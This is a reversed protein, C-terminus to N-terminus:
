DFVGPVQSLTGYFQALRWRAAEHSTLFRSSRLLHGDLVESALVEWRIEELSRSHRRRM